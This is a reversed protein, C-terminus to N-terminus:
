FDLKKRLFIIILKNLDPFVLVANALLMGPM